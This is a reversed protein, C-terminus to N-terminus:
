IRHVLGDDWVSHIWFLIGSLAQRISPHVLGLNHCCQTASPQPCPLAVKWRTQPHLGAPATHPLRHNTSELPLIIRSSRYSIRGSWLLSPFIRRCVHLTHFLQSRSWPFTNNMLVVKSTQLGLLLRRTLMSRTLLGVESLWNISILSLWFEPGSM